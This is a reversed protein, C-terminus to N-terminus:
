SGRKAKKQQAAKGPNDKRWQKARIRAAIRDAQKQHDTGPCYAPKPGGETSAVSLFYRECFPCVRLEGLVQADDLLFALVLGEPGDADGAFFVDNRIYKLRGRSDLELKTNTKVTVTDIAADATALLASRKKGKATRIQELRHRLRDRLELVPNQGKGGSSNSAPVGSFNPSGGILAFLEGGKETGTVLRGYLDNARGPGDGDRWNALDVAAQVYARAALNVPESRNAGREFERSM